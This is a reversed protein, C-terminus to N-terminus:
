NNKSNTKKKEIIKEMEKKLEEMEAISLDEDDSLFSFMNKVSSEFYNKIFKSMFKKTYEKKSVLPFYQHARGFSNHGVFNKAELIRIITSITNYAPKPNPMLEILEKVFGQKTKWLIQMVQEELKTLEKM